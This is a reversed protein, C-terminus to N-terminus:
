NEFIVLNCFCFCASKRMDVTGSTDLVDDSTFVRNDNGTTSTSGIFDLHLEEVV